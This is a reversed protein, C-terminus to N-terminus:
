SRVRPRRAAFLAAPLVILLLLVTDPETVVNEPPIPTGDQPLITTGTATVNFDSDFVTFAQAPPTGAGHWAFRVSFARTPALDDTDAVALFEFEPLFELPDPLLVFASWGAPVVDPQLDSVLLPDSAIMFASGALFAQSEVSYDYKWLDTGSAGDPIDAATYVIQVPTAASIGILQSLVLLALLVAKLWRQTM